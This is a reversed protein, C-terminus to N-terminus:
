LKDVEEIWIDGLLLELDEIQEELVILKRHIDRVKPIDMQFKYDRADNWLKEVVPYGNSYGTHELERTLELLLEEKHPNHINTLTYLTKNYWISDGIKM